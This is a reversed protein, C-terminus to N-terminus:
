KHYLAALAEKADELRGTRGAADILYPLAYGARQSSGGRAVLKWFPISEDYREAYYLMLGLTWAMEPSDSADMAGLDGVREHESQVKSIVDAAQKYRRQYFLVDALLYGARRSEPSLPANLQRALVFRAELSAYDKSRWLVKTEDLAHILPLSAPNGSPFASYEARAKVLGAHFFASAYQDDILWQAARGCELLLDPELSSNYLAEEFSNLSSRGDAHESQRHSILADIGAALRREPSDAGTSVDVKETPDGPAAYFRERKQMIGSPDRPPAHEFRHEYYDCLLGVPIDVSKFDGAIPCPYPRPRSFAATSISVASLSALNLPSGRGVHQPQNPMLVWVILSAGSGLAIAALATRVLTQESWRKM